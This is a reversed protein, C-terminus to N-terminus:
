SSIKKGTKVFLKRISQVQVQVHVKISYTIMAVFQSHNYVLVPIHNGTGTSLPLFQWHDHARIAM